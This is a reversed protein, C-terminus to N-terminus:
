GLTVTMAAVSLPPLELIAKGDRFVVEGYPKSAIRDPHEFSNAVKAGPGTVIEASALSKLTMDGGEITVPAAASLSRNSLFFKATDGDLVASADIVPVMGNTKATYTPGELVLKLATGSRRESFMRFVPFISQLLLRDGDTMVPASVNVIQAINAIRVVDAHRIFSNFFAAVALADELNYMEENMPPAFVGGGEPTVTKYWVNWEDFCIWARKRSRRRAQVYRCVADMEEIQRDIAASEALFDETDGDRSVLYRHLSIYDAYDGMYELVTRDWEMWHPLNAICTGCAVTEISRDVDKMMKAAQQARIAYQDAPVHGLQWHGDMENGLCWLKVGYPDAHGGASRLDAIRTGAPSNCYEVWDRAEEPSGTGLNVTIMPSWGMRRCLMMYEDTGISNPEIGQAAIERIVPRSDRPGIGDRWHYGSAFNGGPYRMATMDLRRLADLVDTRFGDSDARRSAPDYLGGYITRGVHEMFGGFVRPDVPAVRFGSHFRIRTAQM